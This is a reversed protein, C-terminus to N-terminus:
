MRDSASVDHNAPTIKHPKLIGNVMGIAGYEFCLDELEEAARVKTTRNFGDSSSLPPQM